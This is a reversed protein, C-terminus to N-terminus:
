KNDKNFISFGSEKLDSGKTSNFGSGGSTGEKGKKNEEKKGEQSNEIYNYSGVPTVPESNISSDKLIYRNQEKNIPNNSDGFQINSNSNNSNSNNSISNNSIYPDDEGPLFFKGDPTPTKEEPRFYSEKLGKEEPSNKEFM